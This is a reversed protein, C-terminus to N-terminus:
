AWGAVMPGSFAEALSCLGLSGAFLLGDAWPPSTKLAKQAAETMVPMERSWEREPPQQSRRVGRDLWPRLGTRWGCRMSAVLGHAGCRQPSCASWALPPAAELRVNLQPQRQSAGSTATALLELAVPVSLLM